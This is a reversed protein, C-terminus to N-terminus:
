INQNKKKINWLTNVWNYAWPAPNSDREPQLNKCQSLYRQVRQVTAFGLRRYHLNLIGKASSTQNGLYPRLWLTPLFHKIPQGWDTCCEGQLRFARPEHGPWAACNSAKHCRCKKWPVIGKINFYASDCKQWLWGNYDSAVPTAYLCRTGFEQTYRFHMSSGRALVFVFNM